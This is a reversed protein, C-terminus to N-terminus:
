MGIRPEIITGKGYLEFEYKNFINNFLILPKGLGSAIHMAMSVATVIIDCENVIAIFEKLSFYGPYIAGTIKSYKSNAEHEDEGGLLVPTFGSKQLEYILSIWNEEPWMRTPWRKGCGTNLGIMSGKNGKGFASSWKSAYAKDVNLINPEGNFKFGCIEFIEEQYSKKNSKSLEDFLGTLIKNQAAESLGTIHGDESWSFGFKEIASVKNLLVCAEKDKDLNIAVDFHDNLM